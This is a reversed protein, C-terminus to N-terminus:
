GEWIGRVVDVSREPEARQEDCAAGRGLWEWVMKLCHPTRAGCVFRRGDGCIQRRKPEAIRSSRRAALRDAISAGPLWRGSRLRVTSRSRSDFTDGSPRQARWRCNRTGRGGM